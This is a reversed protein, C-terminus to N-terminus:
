HSIPPLSSVTHYLHYHPYQSIYTTTLASHSPHYRPYTLYLHYRPYQSIYTTALTSHSIPPLQPATLLPQYCSY